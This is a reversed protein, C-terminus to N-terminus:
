LMIFVFDPNNISGLIEVIVKQFPQDKQNSLNHKQGAVRDLIDM